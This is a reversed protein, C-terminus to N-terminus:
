KNATLIFLSYPVDRDEVPKTGEFFVRSEINRYGIRDMLDGMAIRDFGNHGQFNKELRHFSGDEETLDVICLCGGDALMERLNKLTTETDPIHHLAMSTYIVDYKVKKAEGDTNIDMLVPMMNRIKRADIKNKLVEIMKESTDILTIHEFQDLLGLSILGTGCGFEMASGHADDPISARIEDSIVRARKMRLEDDWSEAVTDFYM